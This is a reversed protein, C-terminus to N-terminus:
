VRSKEQEQGLPGRLQKKQNEGSALHFRQKSTSSSGSISCSQFALWASEQSIASSEKTQSGPLSDVSQTGTAKGQVRVGTQPFEPPGGWEKYCCSCQHTKRLQCPPNQSHLCATNVFYTFLFDCDDGYVSCPLRGVWEASRLYITRSTLYCKMSLNPCLVDHLMWVWHFLWVRQDQSLRDLASMM